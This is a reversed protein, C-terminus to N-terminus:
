TAFGIGRGTLPKPPNIAYDLCREVITQLQNELLPTKKQNNISEFHRTRHQGKPQVAGASLSSVKSPHTPLDSGATGNPAGGTGRAGAVAGGSAGAAAPVPTSTSAGGVAASRGSGGCSSSTTSRISSSTRTTTAEPEATHVSHPLYYYYTHKWNHKNLKERVIMGLEVLAKLGRAVQKESYQLEESLEPISKWFYRRNNHKHKSYRSWFLLRKYLLTLLRGSVSQNKTKKDNLEEVLDPEYQIFQKKNFTQRKSALTGGRAPHPNEM